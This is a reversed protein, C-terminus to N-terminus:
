RITKRILNVFSKGIVSVDFKEAHARGKQGMKKRLRKNEILQAIRDVWEQTNTVLFGTVNDHIHDS